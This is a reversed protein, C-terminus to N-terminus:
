VDKKGARKRPGDGIVRLAIGAAIRQATMREPDALIRQLHVRVSAQEESSLSEWAALILVRDESFIDAWFRELDGEYAVM